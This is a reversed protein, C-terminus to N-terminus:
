ALVELGPVPVPVTCPGDARVALLRPERGDWPPAPVEEGRVFAVLLDRLTARTREALSAGLGDLMPADRWAELDGLLFPLAFCHPSGADPLTSPVDLRALRVPVRAAAALEQVVSQFQWYTQVAVAAAYPSIRTSQGTLLAESAADPDAFHARLSEEVTEATFSDIGRPRLFAAAEDATTLCLVEQTHLHTAAERPRGLWPPLQDCAAPAFAFGSGRYERAVRAQAHLVASVPATALPNEDGLHGLLLARRHADDAPALPEMRPVSVLVTRRLMGATLPSTSLALAWWAGASDGMVTIDGPDGGFAAVNTRVWRIAAVLDGWTSSPGDTTVTGLAGLRHNVTVLVFGGHRVLDAADYWRAEASGTTFGGGHVLVVVPTAGSSLADVPVQVRVSFSDESQALEGLAPGLLADLLGPVQPFATPAAQAVRPPDVRSGRRAPVSGYRVGRAELVGGSVTARVTGSPLHIEVAETM